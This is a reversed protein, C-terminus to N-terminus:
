MSRCVQGERAVPNSRAVQDLYRAFHEVGPTPLSEVKAADDWRRLAVAEAQFPAAAFVRAQDDTMPGGQLRLSLLSPASLQEAYGPEVRCLYRKAAVHMHVPAAVRAGFRVRIWRAALIEHRDDIGQDPADDPLSHLLHGLDHVLAAVIQEPTAGAQEALWAAQLAHERQSVAEHGYASDGYRAFLELVEETAPEYAGTQDSM